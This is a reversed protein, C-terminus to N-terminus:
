QCVSVGLFLPTCTGDKCSHMADCLQFLNGGNCSKACTLENTSANACCFGSPCDEPTTCHATWDGPGCSTGFAVSPPPM